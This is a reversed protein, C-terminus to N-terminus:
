GSRARRTAGIASTIQRVGGAKDCCVMGPRISRLRSSRIVILTVDTDL